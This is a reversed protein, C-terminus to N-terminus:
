TFSKDHLKTSIKSLLYVYKLDRLRDPFSASVNKSIILITSFYKFLFIKLINKGALNITKINSIKSFIPNLKGIFDSCTLLNFSSM